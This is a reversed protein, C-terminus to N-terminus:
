PTVVAWPRDWSGLDVNGNVFDEETVTVVTGIGPEYIQLTGNGAGVVLVVHRPSVDNGVYLPAPRGDLAARELADYAAQRDAPSDSDVMSVGYGSGGATGNMEEAAGWPSTGIADPWPLSPAGGTGTTDNTREKAELEAQHFRCRQEYAAQKEAFDPDSPDPPGDELDYAPATVVEGTTADYGTLIRLAYVPDDLMRAVTLSASGCTTDSEQELTVELPNLAKGLESESLGEIRQAFNALTELSAGGALAALIWARHQASPADALLQDVVERAGDGLQDYLEQARKAVDGYLPPKGPAASSVNMLELVSMGSVSGEPFPMDDGVRRLTHVCAEAAAGAIEYSDIFARVGEILNAIVDRIMDPIEWPPCVGLRRGAARLCDGGEDHRARARVIEDGYDDLATAATGALAATQQLRNGLRRITAGCALAASGTWVDLTRVSDLEDDGASASERVRRWAAAASEIQAPDGPPREGAIEWARQIMRGIVAINHALELPNLSFGAEQVGDLLRWLDRVIRGGFDELSM